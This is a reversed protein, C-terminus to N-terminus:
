CIEDLSRFKIEKLATVLKEKQEKSLKAKQIISVRIDMADCSQQLAKLIYDRDIMETDLLDIITWFPTTVKLGHSVEITYPELSRKFLRMSVPHESNRRFDKPVIMDYRKAPMYTGLNHLYLATGYGFVGENELNRNQTWLQAIYLGEHHALRPPFYKLRFIGRVKRIWEGTSAYYGHLQRSYGCAKAQQATFYGEQKLAIEYLAEFDPKHFDLQQM